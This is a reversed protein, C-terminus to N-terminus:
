DEIDFPTTTTTVLEASVKTSPVREFALKNTIIGDMLTKVSADTVDENAHNLGISMNDGGADKFKMNIKNTTAM